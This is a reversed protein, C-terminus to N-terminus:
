FKGKLGYAKKFLTGVVVVLVLGVMLDGVMWDVEETKVVKLNMYWSPYRAGSLSTTEWTQYFTPYKKNVVYVNLNPILWFTTDAHCPWAIKQAVLKRAGERSVLRAVYDYTYTFKFLITPGEYNFPQSSLKIMDWGEPAVALILKLHDVAGEAMLADDELVLCVENKSQLFEELVLYHSLANGVAGSPAFRRTGPVMLHDYEAGMKKGDVAAFRRHRIKAKTLMEHVKEWRAKDRDMNVVACDM